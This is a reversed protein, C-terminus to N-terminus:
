ALISINQTKLLLIKTAANRKRKKGREGKEEERNKKERQRFCFQNTIEDKMKQAKISKRAKLDTKESLYKNGM